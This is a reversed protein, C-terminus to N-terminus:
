PVTGIAPMALNINDSSKGDTPERGRAQSWAPGEAQLGRTVGGLGLDVPASSPRKGATVALRPTCLYTCVCMYEEGGLDGKRSSAMQEHQREVLTCNEKRTAEQFRVWGEKLASKHQSRM